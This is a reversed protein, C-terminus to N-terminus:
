FNYLNLSGNLKSSQNSPGFSCPTCVVMGRVLPLCGLISQRPQDHSCACHEALLLLLAQLQQKTKVLFWSCREVDEIELSTIGSLGGVLSEYVEKVSKGISSIVGQGTIAVRNM